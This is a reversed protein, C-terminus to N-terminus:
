WMGINFYLLPSFHYKVVWLNKKHLTRALNFFHCPLFNAYLTRVALHHLNNHYNKQWLLKLLAMCNLLNISNWKWLCQWQWFFGWFYQVQFLLKCNVNENYNRQYVYMNWCGLCSIQNVRQLTYSHFLANVISSVMPYHGPFHSPSISFWLASLSFSLTARSFQLTSHGKM